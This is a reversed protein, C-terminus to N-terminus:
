IHICLHSARLLMLTGILISSMILVLLPFPSTCWKDDLLKMMGLRIMVMDPADNSVSIDSASRMMLVCGVGCLICM